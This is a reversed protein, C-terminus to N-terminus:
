NNSHKGYLQNATHLIKDYMEGCGAQINNKITNPHVGLRKAVQTKWGHPLLVTNITPTITETKM